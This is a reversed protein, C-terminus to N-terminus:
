DETNRNTKPYEKNGKIFNYLVTAREILERVDGNCSPAVIRLCELKINDDEPSSRM